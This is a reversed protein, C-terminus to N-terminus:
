DLDAEDVVLVAHELADHGARINQFRDDAREVGAFARGPFEGGAEVGLEAQAAGLNGGQQGVGAEGQFIGGRFFAEHM